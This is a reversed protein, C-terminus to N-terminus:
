SRSSTEEIQGSEPCDGSRGADEVEITEQIPKPEEVVPEPKLEELKVNARAVSGKKRIVLPINEHQWNFFFWQDRVEDFWRVTGDDEIGIIIGEHLGRKDEALSDYRQVIVREGAFADFTRFGEDNVGFVCEYSGSNKPTLKVPKKQPGWTLENHWAPPKKKKDKDKM